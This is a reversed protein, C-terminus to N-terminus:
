AGRPILLLAGRQPAPVGVGVGKHQGVRRLAGDQANQLDIQVADGFEEKLADEFGQSAADLADHQVLQCIGVKFTQDGAPAEAEETTEAPAESSAAPAAPAAPAASGCATMVLLMAGLMLATMRRKM